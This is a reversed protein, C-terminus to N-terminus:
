STITLCDLTRQIEIVSDLLQKQLGVMRRHTEDSPTEWKDLGKMKRVLNRVSPDSIDDCNRNRIM